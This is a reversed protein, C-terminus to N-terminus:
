EQREQDGHQEAAASRNGTARCLRETGDYLISYQPHKDMTSLHDRRTPRPPGDRRIRRLSPVTTIATGPAATRRRGSVSRITSPTDNTSPRHGHGTIQVPQSAHDRVAPTAAAARDTAVRWGVGLQTSGVGPSGRRGCSRTLPRRLTARHDRGCITLHHPSPTARRFLQGTRRLAASLAYLSTHIPEDTRQRGAGVPRTAGSRPLWVRRRQTQPDPSPLPESRCTPM